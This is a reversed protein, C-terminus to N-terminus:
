KRPGFPDVVVCIAPDILWVATSGAGLGKSGRFAKLRM